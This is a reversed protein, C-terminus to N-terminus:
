FGPHVWASSLRNRFRGHYLPSEPDSADIEDGLKLVSWPSVSSGNGSAFYVCNRRGGWREPNEVALGPVQCDYGVFIAWNGLSEKKVWRSRNMSSDLQFVELRAYIMEETPMLLLYLIKGGCDVLFRQLVFGTENIGEVALPILQLEPSLNLLFLTDLSDMAYMKGKVTAVIMKDVPKIRPYHCSWSPSGVHWYFLSNSTFLLIGSDPSSLPSTLLPSPFPVKSDKPLLPSFLEVGTFPNLIVVRNQSLGLLHGHSFSLFGFAAFKNSNRSLTSSFSPSAPDLLGLRSFQRPRSFEPCLLLPPFLSTTRSSPLSSAVVRWSRCVSSFSVFDVLSYLCTMITHLPGDPLDSWSRVASRDESRRRGAATTM